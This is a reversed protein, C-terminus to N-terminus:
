RPPFMTFSGNEIILVEILERIPKRQLIGVVDATSVSTDDLRVVLRDAQRKDPDRHAKKRIGARVQDVNNSTPNLHDWYNGEMHYDPEKGNPLPTDNHRIEFGERALFDASENQRTVNLQKAAPASRHVTEPTGGARAGPRRQAPRPTLGGADVDTTGTTAQLEQTRDVRVEVEAGERAVKLTGRTPDVETVRATVTPQDPGPTVRVEAGVALQQGRILAVQIQRRALVEGFGAGAAGSVASLVTGYFILAIRDESNWVNPQVATSLGGGAGEIVAGRFIVRGMTSAGGFRALVGATAVDVLTSRWAGTLEGRLRELTQPSVFGAAAGAEGRELANQAGSIRVAGTGAALGAGVLAAALMSFSGLTFVTLLTTIVVLGVLTATDWFWRSDIERNAEAIFIQADSGRRPTGKARPPFGEVDGGMGLNAYVTDAVDPFEKLLDVVQDVGEDPDDDQGRYPQRVQARIEVLRDHIPRARSFMQAAYQNIVREFHHSPNGSRWNHVLTDAIGWGERNRAGLGNMIAELVQKPDDSGGVTVREGGRPDLVQMVLRRFRTRFEGSRRDQDVALAQLGQLFQDCMQGILRASETYVRRFVRNIEADSM